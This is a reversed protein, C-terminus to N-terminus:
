GRYKRGGKEGDQEEEAKQDEQGDVVGRAVVVMMVLGDARTAGCVSTIVEDLSETVEVLNLGDGQLRGQKM